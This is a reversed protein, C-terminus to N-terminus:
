RPGGGIISSTNNESGPPAELLSSAAISPPMIIIIRIIIIDVHIMVQTHLSATTFALQDKEGDLDKLKTLTEDLDM